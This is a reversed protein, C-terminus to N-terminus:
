AMGVTIYQMAKVVVVSHLCFTNFVKKFNLEQFFFFIDNERTVIFLCM